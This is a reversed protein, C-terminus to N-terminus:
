RRARSSGRDACWDGAARRRCGRHRRRARDRGSRPQAFPRHHGHLERGASAAGDAQRGPQLPRHRGGVQRRAHRWDGAQAPDHLRGAHVASRRAQRRRVAPRCQGSAPRGRGEGAPGGRDGADQRSPRAAAAAGPHRPDGSRRQAGRGGGDAGGPQDGGAADEAGLPLRTRGGEQGQRRCLGRKGPRRRGAGRCPRSGDRHGAQPARDRAEVQATVEEAVARGDIRMAGDASSLPVDAM